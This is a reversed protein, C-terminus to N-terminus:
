LSESGLAISRVILATITIVIISILDKRNLFTSSINVPVQDRGNDMLNPDVVM